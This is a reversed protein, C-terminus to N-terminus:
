SPENRKRRWEKLDERKRRKERKDGEQEQM